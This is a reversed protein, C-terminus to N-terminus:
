LSSSAAKYPKFHDLGSRKERQLKKPALTLCLFTKQWSQQLADPGQSNVCAFQRSKMNAHVEQVNQEEFIEKTSFIASSCTEPKPKEQILSKGPISFVDAVTQNQCTALGVVTDVLGQTKFVKLVNPEFTFDSM